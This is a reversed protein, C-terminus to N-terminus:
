SRSFLKQLRKATLYGSIYETFFNRKRLDGDGCEAIVGSDYSRRTQASFIITFIESNESPDSRSKHAPSSLGLEAPCSAPYRGTFTVKLFTCCFVFWRSVPLPSFALCSSVAKRAVSLATCVGDPALGFLSRYPPGDHERTPQQLGAAVCTRSLHDM